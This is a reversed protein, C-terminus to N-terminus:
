PSTAPNSLPSKNYIKSSKIQARPPDIKKLRLTFISGQNIISKVYIRNGYTELINHVISLGLGTGTQKTTYFPQFISKIIDKTMGCGTDSIELNIYDNSATAMKITIVGTDQIAEAANLLLNLFIQRFHDPDMKTWIEEDLTNIIKIRKNYVNNKEFLNIIDVLEQRIEIAKAHGAPPKAYLFFNNILDNLRGAERLFIQILKNQYSNFQTDERLLQISGTLSTLPNKLEHALGAAMGGIAAMKEVRKFHDEMTELQNKTDRVQKALISSLYAVALCAAMSIVMKYLVYNWDYHVAILSEEIIIPKIIGYYELDIMIGYQISCIAAMIMVGRRPLLMSSYIMVILYLFVFSSSYCGSIYVILTVIFTDFLIQLYAFLLPKKIHALILTYCLSLFFIGGTLSYLFILSQNILSSNKKIQLFIAAGILLTTVVLRIFILLKLKYNFSNESKQM